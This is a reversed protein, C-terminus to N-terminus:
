VSRIHGENHCYYVHLYMCFHKLTDILAEMNFSFQKFKIVKCYRNSPRLTVTVNPVGNSTPQEQIQNAPPAPSDAWDPRLHDPPTDSTPTPPAKAWDPREGWLGTSSKPRQLPLVVYM